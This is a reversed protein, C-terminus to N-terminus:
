SVDKEDFVALYGCLWINNDNESPKKKKLKWKQKHTQKPNQNRKLCPRIRSGPSARVRGSAETEWTSLNYAHEAVGQMM